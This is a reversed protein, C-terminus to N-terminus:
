VIRINYGTTTATEFTQQIESLSRCHNYEGSSAYVHHPQDNLCGWRMMVTVQGRPRRYYTRSKCLVLITAPYPYPFGKLPYITAKYFTVVAMFPTRHHVVTLSSFRNQIDLGLLLGRADYFSHSTSFDFSQNAMCSEYDVLSPIFSEWAVVGTIVWDREWTTYTSSNDSHALLKHSAMNM